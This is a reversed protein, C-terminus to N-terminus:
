IVKSYRATARAERLHRDFAMAVTRVLLRGRDTVRISRPSLEVLGDDALPRLAELEAAFERPFDIGHQAEVAPISLEFECM